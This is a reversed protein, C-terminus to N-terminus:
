PSVTLNDGHLSDQGERQLQNICPKKMWASQLYTFGAEGFALLEANQDIQAMKAWHQEFLNGKLQDAPQVKVRQYFEGKSAFFFFFDRLLPLEQM